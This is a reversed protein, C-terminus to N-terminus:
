NTFALVEVAEEGEPVGSDQMMDVEDDPSYKMLFFDDEYKEKLTELSAELKEFMEFSTIVFTVGYSLSLSQYHLSLPSSPSYSEINKQDLKITAESVHHPDLYVLNESGHTGIFYYAYQRNGGLGGAYGEIEMLEEILQFQRKSISDPSVQSLFTLILTCKWDCQLCNVKVQCEFELLDEKEKDKKSDCLCCSEEQKRRAYIKKLIAIRRVEGSAEICFVFDDLPVSMTMQKVNLDKLRANKAEFLKKFAQLVGFFTWYKGATGFNNEVGTEVIKQIGFVTEESDNETFHKLLSIKLLTIERKTLSMRDCFSKVIAYFIFMQSARLVCGWDQLGVRTKPVVELARFTRETRLFFFSIWSQVRNLM